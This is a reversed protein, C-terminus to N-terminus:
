LAAGEEIDGDGAYFAVPGLDSVDATADTGETYEVQRELERRAWRVQDLYQESPQSEPSMRGHTRLLQDAALIAIVQKAVRPYTTWPGGHSRKAEDWVGTWHELAEEIKPEIDEVWELRGSGQDLLTVAAGGDTASVQLADGSVPIAYYTTGDVLPEPLASDAGIARLRGPTGLAAGHRPIVLASGDVLVSEVPRARSVLAEARVGLSYFEAVTLAATM